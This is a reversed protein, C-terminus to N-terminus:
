MTQKATCAIGCIGPGTHTVISFPLNSMYIETDPFQEKLYATWERGLEESGSYAASIHVDKGKFEGEMDDKVAQVMAKWAAKQGRTKKFANLEGNKYQLVPKIKLMSGIAAVAPSIRGGKKLYKLTDVSLYINADNSTEELKEKIEQASHGQKQWLVADYVAQRLTVSIRKNDVVLVKGDFDRAFMRASEMSGSLTSTMPIHLVMDHTKLLETWLDMLDGPSPQSTTIDSDAYLHQYFDDHSLNVNELYTTGNIIFPMFILHVGLERAEDKTISSNTDTVIAFSKM